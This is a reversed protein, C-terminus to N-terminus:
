YGRVAQLVRVNQLGDLGTVPFEETGRAARGFAEVQNRYPNVNPSGSVHPAENLRGRTVLGGHGFFINECVCYAETGYLEFRAPGGAGTSADCVASVGGKFRLMMTAHDETEFGFRANSLNGNVGEVEGLFWRCLDLLHTGIDGLAWGGSTARKQRWEGPPAPYAYYLQARIFVPAGFAGAKWDHRVEQLLGHHRLHYAIGLVRNAAKAAAIMADCEQPTVAMPKECLVHKGAKLAAITHQAHLHNPSAVWVAEVSEDKLFAALDSYGKEVEHKECFAAASAARSSLVASLKANHAGAIAPGFTSDAWGTSGVLGWTVVPKAM